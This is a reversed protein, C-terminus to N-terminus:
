CYWPENLYPVAARATRPERASIPLDSSQHAVAWVRAFM